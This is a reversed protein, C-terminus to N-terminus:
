MYLMSQIVVLQAFAFTKSCYSKVNPFLQAEGTSNLDSGRGILLQALVLFFKCMTMTPLETRRALSAGLLGQANEQPKFLIDSEPQCERNNEAAAQRHGQCHLHFTLAMGLAAPHCCHCLMCSLCHGDLCVTGTQGHAPPQHSVTILACLLPTTPACRLCRAPPCRSPFCPVRGASRSRDGKASHFWTGATCCDVELRTCIGTGALTCNQRGTKLNKATKREGWTWPTLWGLGRWCCKRCQM